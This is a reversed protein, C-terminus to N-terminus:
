LKSRPTNEPIGVKRSMPEVARSAALVQERPIMPAKYLWNGGDVVFTEGSVWSAANSQQVSNVPIFM